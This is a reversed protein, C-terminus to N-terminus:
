KVGLHHIYALVIGSSLLTTLVCGIAINRLIKIGRLAEHLRGSSICTLSALQVANEHLAHLVAIQTRNQEDLGVLAQEICGLQEYVVGLHGNNKEVAKELAEIGEKIKNEVELMPPVYENYGDENPIVGLRNTDKIMWYHPPVGAVPELSPDILVDSRGLYDEYDESTVVRAGDKGFVIIKHKAM